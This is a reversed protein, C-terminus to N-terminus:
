DGSEFYITIERRNIWVNEWRNKELCDEPWEVKYVDEDKRVEVVDKCRALRELAEETSDVFTGGLLKADKPITLEMELHVGEDSLEEGFSEVVRFKTLLSCGEGDFLITEGNELTLELEGIKM